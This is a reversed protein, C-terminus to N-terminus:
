EITIKRVRKGKKRQGNGKIKDSKLVSIIKGAI